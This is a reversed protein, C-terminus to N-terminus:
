LYFQVFICHKPISIVILICTFGTTVPRCLHMPNGERYDELSSEVQVVAARKIYVARKRISYEEAVYNRKRLCDEQPTVPCPLFDHLLQFGTGYTANMPYLFTMSIPLIRINSFIFIVGEVGTEITDKGTADDTKRDKALGSNFSFDLYQKVFFSCDKASLENRMAQLSSVARNCFQSSAFLGRAITVNSLGNWLLLSGWGWAPFYKRMQNLSIQSIVLKPVSNALILWKAACDCGQM